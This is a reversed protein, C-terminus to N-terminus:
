QKSAAYVCETIDGVTHLNATVSSSVTVGFNLGLVQTLQQLEAESAGLDRRFDVEPTIASRQVGYFSSVLEAVVFDCEKYSIEGISAQAANRAMLTSSARSSVYCGRDQSWSVTRRSALELQETYAMMKTISSLADGDGSNGSGLLNGNALRECDRFAQLQSNCGALGPPTNANHCKNLARCQSRCGALNAALCNVFGADDPNTPQVSTCGRIAHANGASTVIAFALALTGLKIKSLTIM